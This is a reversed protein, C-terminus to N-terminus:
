EANAPAAEAAEEAPEQVADPIVDADDLVIDDVSKDTVVGTIADRKACYACLRTRNAAIAQEVTGYTLEEAFGFGFGVGVGIRRPSSGAPLPKGRRHRPLHLFTQLLIHIPKPKPIPIPITLMHQCLMTGDSRLVQM